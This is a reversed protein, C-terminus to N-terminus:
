RRWADVRPCRALDACGCTLAAAVRRRTTRLSALTADIEALRRRAVTRWPAEGGPADAMAARVDALTFGARRAAEGIPVVEGQRPPGADRGGM